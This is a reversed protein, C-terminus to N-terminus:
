FRAQFRECAIHLAEEEDPFPGVVEGGARLWYQPYGTAAADAGLRGDVDYFLEVWLGEGAESTGPGRALVRVVETIPM